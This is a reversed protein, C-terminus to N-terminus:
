DFSYKAAAKATFVYFLCFFLLAYFRILLWSSTSVTVNFLIVANNNATTKQTEATIM